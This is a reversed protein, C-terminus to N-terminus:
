WDVTVPLLGGQGLYTRASSYRWHQPEDVYGRRVPNAHIYELKQRMMTEDHILKPHNGQQWLQFQRDVKHKERHDELGELLSVEGRTKLFDIISRATFSKFDGMEKTLDAASAILHLHNELIVYGFIALRSRDQLFRWSDLVVQVAEMRTFVPLWGVVTCTLFHPYPSEGFRYRDRGM